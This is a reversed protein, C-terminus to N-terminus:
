ITAAAMPAHAGLAEEVAEAFVDLSEDIQEDSAVLGVLVRLCNGHMGAKLILLGRRMAAEAVATALEPAPLKDAPDRVFELALMPGLGRVDGIQAHRTQLELLRVRMREGISRGRGLLDLRDIEDLVAIGAVCGLPSGVYTGGITSDGAADVVDARGLVGSIPVGAAISKAVTILDPEVGFHEIAFLKGTRGFGTQVEDAILVIGHEDAIQRLGRVWEVPPVVFGGEGQVPEFIIAAVSEAAVHTTFMERLADLAAQSPDAAADRYPYPYPARYVEGAFPGMGAKYPHQKSTLTMAMLTRGHFARDFTVVASRGTALKAVKVANEVAEAGSNFFAAKKAGSIPTRALLKEALEVYSEYPVMTFDTHLFRDVQAHLAASVAANTHGVNLCGIGGTWDLFTNGDVDTIAIGHAHDIVIPLYISKADAIVRQKRELIQSTKPGPVATRLAITKGM